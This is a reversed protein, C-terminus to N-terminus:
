EFLMKAVTDQTFHYLLLNMTACHQYSCGGVQQPSEHDSLGEGTLRQM